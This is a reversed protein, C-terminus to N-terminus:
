VDPGFEFEVLASIFDPVGKFRNPRERKRTPVIATRRSRGMKVQTPATANQEQKLAIV